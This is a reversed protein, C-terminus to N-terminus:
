PEIIISIIPVTLLCKLHHHEGGAHGFRPVTLRSRKSMSNLILFEHSLRLEPNSGRGLAWTIRNM